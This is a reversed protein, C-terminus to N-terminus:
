TYKYLYLKIIIIITKNRIRKAPFIVLGDFISEFIHSLLFSKNKKKEKGM